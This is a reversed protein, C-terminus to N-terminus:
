AKKIRIMWDLSHKDLDVKVKKIKGEIEEVEGDM